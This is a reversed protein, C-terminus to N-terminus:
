HGERLRSSMGRRSTPCTAWPGPLLAAGPQPIGKGGGGLRGVEGPERPRSSSHSPPLLRLRPLCGPGPPRMLVGRPLRSRRPRPFPRPSVCLPDPRPGSPAWPAGAPVHGTHEPQLPSKRPFAGHAAPQLARGSRARMVVAGQLEDRSPCTSYRPATLAPLGCIFWEM